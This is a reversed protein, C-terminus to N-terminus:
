LLKCFFHGMGSKQQLIYYLFHQQLYLADQVTLTAPSTPYLNALITSVFNTPLSVHNALAVTALTNQVKALDLPTFPLLPATRQTSLGPSKRPTYDLFLELM